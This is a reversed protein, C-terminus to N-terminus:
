KNSVKNIFNKLVGNNIVGVYTYTAGKSRNPYTLYEMSPENQFKKLILDSYEKFVKERSGDKATPVVFVVQAKKSKDFNELASAIAEKMRGQMFPPFHAFFMQEDSYIGVGHCGNFKPSIIKEGNTMKKELANFVNVVSKTNSLELSDAQLPIKLTNIKKDINSAAKLTSTKLTDVTKILNITM